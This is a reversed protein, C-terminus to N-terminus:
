QDDAHAHNGLGHSNIIDSVDATYTIFLLPGLLSGQPVGYTFNSTPATLGNFAVTQQWNTVFAKLWGLVSGGIGYSIHLRRLLIKHNVMDFAASLDLLGMMTVKGSDMADWIDWAVKLFLWRHPTGV